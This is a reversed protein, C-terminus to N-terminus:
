EVTLQAQLELLQAIERRARHRQLRRLAKEHAKKAAAIGQTLAFDRAAKVEDVRDRAREIIAEQAEVLANFRRDDAANLQEDLLGKTIRVNIKLQEAVESPRMRAKKAM